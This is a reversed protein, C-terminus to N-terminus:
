GARTNAGARRAAEESASESAPRQKAAQPARVV